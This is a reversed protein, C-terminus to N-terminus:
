HQWARRVTKGCLYVILIGAIPLGILTRLDHRLLANALDGVLNVCLVGIALHRAWSARRALGLATLGCAFGVVAMLLFSFNGMKELGARAAPNLRWMPEMLSGPFLLGAITLLCMAAGFCFFVILLKVGVPFSGPEATSRPRVRKKEEPM